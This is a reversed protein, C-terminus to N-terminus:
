QRSTGCENTNLTSSDIVISANFVRVGNAEVFATFTSGTDQDILFLSFKLWISSHVPLNTFTKTM